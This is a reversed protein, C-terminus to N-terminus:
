PSITLTGTMGAERHGPVNCIYEYEGTEDVLFTIIQEEGPSIDVDLGLEEITFNHDLAGKNQITISITQGQKADMSITDWIIDEAGLSIEITKSSSSCSSLLLIISIFLVKYVPKSM